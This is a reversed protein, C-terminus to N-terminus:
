RRENDERCIHSMATGTGRQIETVFSGQALFVIRILMLRIM